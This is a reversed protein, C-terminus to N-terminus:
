KKDNWTRKGVTLFPLFLVPLWLFCGLNLGANRLGGYFYILIGASFLFMTYLPLLLKWYKTDPHKWPSLFSILGLAVLFLIIGCFGAKFNGQFMFIAALLILWCFAGLWGGTWGIKEGKRNM